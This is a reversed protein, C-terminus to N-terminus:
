RDRPGRFSQGLSQCATWCGLLTRARTPNAGRKQNGEARPLKDSGQRQRPPVPPTGSSPEAAGTDCRLPRDAAASVEGESSNPQEGRAQDKEPQDEEEAAPPQERLQQALTQANQQQLFPLLTRLITCALPAQLGGLLGLFDQNPVASQHLLQWEQLDLTDPDVARDPKGIAYSFVLRAAAVDGQQAQQILQRAITHLDEATIADLLAQRFGATKRAFPNGPGGKNGPAFRGRSDRQTQEAPAPGPPGAPPTHSDRTAPNAQPFPPQGNACPQQQNM